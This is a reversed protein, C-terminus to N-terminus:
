EASDETEAAARRSQYQEFRARNRDDVERQTIANVRLRQESTWSKMLNKIEKLNQYIQHLDERDVLSHKFPALDLIIPPDEYRRSGELDTYTIEVAYRTPVTAEGDEPVLDPGQGLPFTVVRNPALMPMGEVFVSLADREHGLTGRLPKDFSFRVDCAPTTGINRVAIVALQGIFEFDLVVYPRTQDERIQRGQRVQLWVLVGAVVAVVLAGVQGFAAWEPAGWSLPNMDSLTSRFVSLM